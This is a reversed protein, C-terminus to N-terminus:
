KYKSVMEHGCILYIKPPHTAAPHKNLKTMADRPLTQSQM